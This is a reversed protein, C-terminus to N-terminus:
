KNWFRSSEWELGLLIGVETLIVYNFILYSVYATILVLLSTNIVKRRQRKVDDFTCIGRNRFYVVLGIIVSLTAVALMTPRFWDYGEGGWYLTDSLAAATSVSALGFLVLVVSPLCCLSAIITSTSILKILSKTNKEEVM